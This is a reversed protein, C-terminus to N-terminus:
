AGSRRQDGVKGTFDHEIFREGILRGIGSFTVVTGQQVGVRPGHDIYDVADTWRHDPQVQMCAAM